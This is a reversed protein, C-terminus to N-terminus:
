QLEGMRGAEQLQALEARYARWHADIRETHIRGGPQKRHKFDGRVAVMLLWDWSVGSDPHPAREVIPDTTYAYHFRIQYRLREAIAQQDKPQFMALYHLLFSSWTEGPPKQPRSQYSYLDTLAYRGAAGVGPVRACMREWVEPFCSAYTWLKQLPEEGFAPSCRQLSRPVGAMEMLDYARNYDWDFLAPATWVDETTWDYVPYVKWLNGRNTADAYRVIFNDALKATVARRRTLSEQARIGMFMGSNGHVRPDFLLGNLAPNTLRAEPPFTPFGDLTTIAGDPLPRCWLDKAEPAWPWWWPSSRSCANRHQIPLCYWELQVDPWAAVRAVYDATEQPIAEEDWFLVRLPLRGRERAVELAVQLTATSDKGGSFAVALHDFLDFAQRARDLALTWVDQDLRVQTRPRTAGALRDAM